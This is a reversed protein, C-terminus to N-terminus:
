SPRLRFVVGENPRLILEGNCRDGERDLQTSLLLECPEGLKASAADGGINLTVLFRAGDGEREYSLVTGDGSKPRFRGRVLAPHARRLAILRRYLTLSSHPDADQAAVNRAGNAEGLPLWPTGTTFGSNPAADWPMPTRQPDRDGSVDPHHAEHPAIAVDELGLEDGNYVFATGGATFALMAAVRAQERGIRSALRQEDHNGLVWNPWAGPPLLNRYQDLAAALARADWATNLLVFNFPLHFAPSGLGYYRMVREAPLHAEGILLRDKYGDLLRRWAAAVAHTEPRDSTFAHRVGAQVPLGEGALEGPPDERLLDDEVLHPVADVRFGDVGRDLWFRLVGDMASKVEPNRWNLDPQEPLFAHYYYQGSAPDRTWASGEMMSRWGNPPGGGAAPDRWVYWNRRPNERTARSELFWPHRDSTHNPVFDLVVKLGRRHAQTLLRDFTDLDGFLRHVSTFDEIDYGGDHLPSPHFPSLWLADAGLAVIYDLRAIVGALDGVGDGDSDQFSRLYVQYIVADQWWPPVCDEHTGQTM